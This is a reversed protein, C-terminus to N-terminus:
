NSIMRYPKGGKSIGILRTLARHLELFTFPKELHLQNRHVLCNTIQVDGTAFLFPVGLAVLRNAVPYVMEGAGLNMDLVAANLADEDEILDLAQDVSSVPGVVEVDADHLWDKLLMAILYDNEVVLIRRGALTGFDESM